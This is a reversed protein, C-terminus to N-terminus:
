IAVTQLRQVEGQPVLDLVARGEDQSFLPGLDIQGLCEGKVQGCVRAELLPTLPCLFPRQELM